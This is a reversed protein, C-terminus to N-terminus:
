KICIDYIDQYNKNDKLLECSSKNGTTKAIDLVCSGKYSEGNILKCFEVNKTSYAMAALCSDQFDNKKIGYHTRKLNCGIGYGIDKGWKIDGTYNSCFNLDNNRVASEFAGNFESWCNSYSSYIGGIYM